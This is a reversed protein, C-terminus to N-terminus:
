YILNDPNMIKCTYFFHLLTRTYFVSRRNLYVGLEIFKKDIYSSIKICKQNEILIYM